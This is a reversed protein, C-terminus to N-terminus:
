LLWVVYCGPLRWYTLHDTTPISICYASQNGWLGVEDGTLLFHMCFLTDVLTFRYKYTHPSFSYKRFISSEPKRECGGWAIVAFIIGNYWEITRYIQSATGYTRRNTASNGDRRGCNSDSVLWTHPSTAVAATPCTEGLVKTERDTIWELLQEVITM